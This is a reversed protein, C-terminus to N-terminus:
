ENLYITGFFLYRLQMLMYYLEGDIEVIFSRSLLYRSLCFNNHPENHKQFYLANDSSKSYILLYNYEDEITKLVELMYDYKYLENLKDSFRDLMLDIGTKWDEVKEMIQQYQRDDM